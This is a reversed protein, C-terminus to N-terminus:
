NTAPQQDILEFWAVYRQTNVHIPTCSTLTLFASADSVESVGMPKPAIVWIADPEVVQSKLYRYTFRTGAREVFVVDGLQFKDINRFPGGSGARHAALAFNGDQGPLASGSYHGVGLPTLVKSVSTGEYVLRSWDAGFRPVWLKAVVAPKATQSSSEPSPSAQPTSPGSVAPDELTVSEAAAQQRDADAADQNAQNLLWASPLAIGAALCIM